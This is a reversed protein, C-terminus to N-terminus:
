RNNDGALIVIGHFIATFDGGHGRELQILCVDGIQNLVQFREPSISGFSQNLIAVWATQSLVVRDKHILMVAYPLSEMLAKCFPKDKFSQEALKKYKVKKNEEIM